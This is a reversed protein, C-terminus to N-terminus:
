MWKIHPQRRLLSTSEEGGKRGPLSSREQSGIRKAIEQHIYKAFIAGFLPNLHVLEDEHSIVNV